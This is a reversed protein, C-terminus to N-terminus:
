HTPEAQKKIKRGKAKMVSMKGSASPGMEGPGGNIKDVWGSLWYYWKSRVARKVIAETRNLISLDMTEGQQLDRFLNDDVLKM